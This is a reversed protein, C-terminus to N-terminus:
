GRGTRRSFLNTGTGAVGEGAIRKLATWRGGYRTNVYLEALARGYRLVDGFENDDGTWTGDVLQDAALEDLFESYEDWQECIDAPLSVFGPDLVSMRGEVLSQRWTQTVHSAIELLDPRAMKKKLQIQRASLGAKAYGLSYLDTSTSRKRSDGKLPMCNRIPACLQYIDQSWDGSDIAAPQGWIAISVERQAPQEPDPELPYKLSKWDDLFVQKSESIGWDIVAGRAMAFPAGWAIAMWYFVLQEGIKGVDATMTTFATWHPLSHLKTHDDCRMRQAVKHPQTRRRAPDWTRALVENWFKQLAGLKGQRALNDSDVFEGVIAGWGSIMLSYLASLEFLLTDSIVEPQGTITGAKDISEGVALWVGARIMETRHHDEIRGSCHLCEYYATRSALDKTSRGHADKEWKLQEFELTQHEGCHPCPVHYKLIQTNGSQELAYARCSSKDSPTGEELIKVGRDFGGARTEVRMAPDAESSKRTPNKNVEIKLVKRAPFGSVSSKEGGSSIRVNCDDFGIAKRNREHPPPIQRATFATQELMPYLQNDLSRDREGNDPFHLVMPCPDRAIDGIMISIATSTKGLRSAWKLNIKRVDDNLWGRDIVGRVYPQTDYDFAVTEWGPPFRVTAPLFEHLDVPPRPRFAEAVSAKLEGITLGEIM